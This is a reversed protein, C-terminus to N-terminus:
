RYIGEIRQTILGDYMMMVIGEDYGDFNEENSIGSINNEILQFFDVGSAYAHIYAGGFRPNIESLFYQGNKYFFDMDVAGNFEFLAAVKKIFEVLLPDYFSITKSAGGIKMELKRKSFVAVPKHSILDIYVDADLDIADGMYEQIILSSDEKIAFELKELCEIKRAGVSGSGTRPKVFVPFSIKGEGLDDLFSELGGWTKITYIGKDKLYDAFLLKDLCLHATQRDPVILRVGCADFRERNQALIEIEPDILTAAADINEIMCINIIEDLYKESHIPSILYYKDAVYLAPALASCDTAVIKVNDKMSDKLNKLLEVRRGVSLFLINM